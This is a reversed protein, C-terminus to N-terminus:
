ASGGRELPVVGLVNTDFSTGRALLEEVVRPITGTGRFTGEVVDSSPSSTMVFTFIDDIEIEEASIRGVEGIRVVRLRGDKFRVVDLLLDFAGAVLRRATDIGIGPRESLVDTTLRSLALELGRAECLAVSGCSGSGSLEVFAGTVAPSELTIAMQLACCQGAARVLAAPDSTDWLSWHMLPVSASNAGLDQSGEVAVLPGEPMCACLAASVSGIDADRPGAILIRLRAAVAQQLFSSVSRSITGARVLHQLSMGTQRSKRLALSVQGGPRPPVVAWLSSEGPLRRTVVMEDESRPKGSWACLRAVARRASAASAFAADHREFYAGRRVLLVDHRAVVIEVVSPDDFLPGLPGFELLEARALFRLVDSSLTAPVRGSDILLQLAEDLAREALAQADPDIVDAVIKSSIRGAVTEVLEAVVQRHDLDGPAITPAAGPVVQVAELPLPRAVLSQASDSALLQVKGTNSENWSPMPPRPAGLPRPAVPLEPIGTRAGSALPPVPRARGSVQERPGIPPLNEGAVAEAAEPREAEATEIRLVFDGVYIRDGEGVVTAQQIRRRNVYTGNTSNLDTVVFRGDSFILKAHRKSVNGKPLTLDNGQIRGISLEAVAFSERREAGGKESIVITFSPRTPQM